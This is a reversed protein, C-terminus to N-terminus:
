KIWNILVQTFTSNAGQLGKINLQLLEGGRQFSVVAGQDGDGSGSYRRWGDNLLESAYFDLVHAVGLSTEFTVSESRQGAELSKVVSSVKSRPPLPLGTNKSERYNLPSPTVVIKGDVLDGQQSFQVSYQFGDLQFGIIAMDGIAKQSLKGHGKVKLLSLYYAKVDEPKGPYSFLKISMPVNNVAMRRGAWYWSAGDIVELEPLEVSLPDRLGCFGPGAMLLM